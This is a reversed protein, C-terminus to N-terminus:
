DEEFRRARLRGADRAFLTALDLLAYRAHERDSAHRAASLYHPVRGAVDRLGPAPASGPHRRELWALGEGHRAMQSLLDRVRERNRHAVIAAPREELRWGAAQLRWCLDADEGARAEQDFGGVVRFAEARVALNATQGYPRYPHGLAHRQDMRRRASVYRAVTTDREARDEVAGVLVAVDDAPLPDLYADLLGPEPTTDADLFVLWEGGAARSAM